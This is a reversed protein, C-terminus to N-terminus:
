LALELEKVISYAKQNMNYQTGTIAGFVKSKDSVHHSTYRTFSNFLGFLNNGIANTEIIACDRILEARNIKRTSNEEEYNWDVFKEIALKVTDETIQKSNWVNFEHYMEEKLQFYIEISQLFDELKSEASITHKFKNTKSIRSWQNMCRIMVNTSGIFTSTKGNFSTGITMYDKMEFGAVSNLGSNNKLYGLIIRGGDFQSYGSFEFGSAQQLRNVIEKFQSVYLPKYSDKMISLISENDNRIVAQYNEAKHYSEGAYVPASYVEFDINDKLNNNM